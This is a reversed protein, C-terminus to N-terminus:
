LVIASALATIQFKTHRLSLDAIAAEVTTINVIASFSSLRESHEPPLVKHDDALAGFLATEAAEDRRLGPQRFQRFQRVATSVTSASDFCQRVWQRVWQRVM